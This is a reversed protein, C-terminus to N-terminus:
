PEFNGQETQRAGKFWFECEELAALDKWAGSLLGSVAALHIERELVNQAYELISWETHEAAEIM